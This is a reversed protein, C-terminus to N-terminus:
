ESDKRGVQFLFEKEEPTLNDYGSENIKDLIDDVRQQIDKPRTDVKQKPQENRYAVRLSNKKKYVIDRNQFLNNFGDVIYSVPQGMDVGNRLQFVYLWGFFAGGLHGFHGGTNIQGTTGVLDLFVLIAVVYKLKVSGIFLLHLNYDPAAMGSAVVLAMVSASAGLAYHEVGGGYALFKVSLIYFIAGTLGGLIYLPLIKRDGLLDGVIRGFWYLFLMNWLIHWFGEHIFMHTLLTWFRTLAKFPESSLSMFRVFDDYLHLTQGAGAYFFLVYALKILIFVAVNIIILRTLTNGLKFEYKIDELVSRAM